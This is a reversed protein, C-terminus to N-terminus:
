VIRFYVKVSINLIKDVEAFCDGLNEEEEEPFDSLVDSLDDPIADDDPKVHEIVEFEVPYNVELDKVDVKNIKVCAKKFKLDALTPDIDVYCALM